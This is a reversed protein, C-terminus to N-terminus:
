FDAEKHEQSPVCIGLTKIKSHITKYDVNLLRAAEAKNGGTHGLVSSIIQKELEVTKERVIHKLSKGQWVRRADSPTQEEAAEHGKELRINEKTIKEEALLVAQRITSRLQRVNGPWFYNMLVALAEDEFAYVNKDLERNAQERFREALFPIDERRERLPPIRLTFENLRYYLDSRFHQGQVATYLDQNSAVLLRVDIDLPQTGGLRVVQREQIVRLVKIQSSLPMNNIEDLLLTGGGAMEFKGAKNNQAGTFAGRQHGFLESELLTEPIAGCDIAVFPGNRRSSLHHLGKAVVEKGAGTEGQIIVNFGTRAVTNMDAILQTVAPSPGMLKNLDITEQDRAGEQKKSLASRREMLANRVTQLLERSSVPKTLYSYAGGKVSEIVLDVDSYATVMIIRLVPDIAMCQRMLERGDIDPLKMDLLMVDPCEFRLSRMAEQGTYAVVHDYGERGMITSLLSCIDPEDDVILIKPTVESM